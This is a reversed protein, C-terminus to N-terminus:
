LKEKFDEKNLTALEINPTLNLCGKPCSDVCQGCVICHGVDIYCEFKKDEKTGENVIKLCSAPCDRVCINCGICSAPDYIIKGRYKSDIVLKEYPYKITASKSFLQKMAYGAVFGPRKM